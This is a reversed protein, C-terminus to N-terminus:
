YGEISLFNKQIESEMCGKCKTGLAPYGCLLKYHNNWHTRLTSCPKVRRAKVMLDNVVDITEYLFAPSHLVEETTDKRCMREIYNSYSYTELEDPHTDWGDSKYTRQMMVKFKKNYRYWAMTVNIMWKNRRPLVEHDCESLEGDVYEYHPMPPIPLSYEFKFARIQKRVSTSDFQRLIAQINRIDTLKFLFSEVITYIQQALGELPKNELVYEVVRRRILEWNRQKIRKSM